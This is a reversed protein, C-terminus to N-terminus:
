LARFGPILHTPITPQGHPTMHGFVTSGIETLIQIKMKLEQAIGAASTFAVLASFALVGYAFRKM